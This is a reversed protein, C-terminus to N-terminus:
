DESLRKIIDSCFEDSYEYAPYGNVYDVVPCPLGQSPSTNDQLQPMQQQMRHQKAKQLRSQSEKYVKLESQLRDRDQAAMMEYKRKEDPDLGRWREGLLKGMEAFKIGEKFEELIKPREDKTFFVYAGVARKPANPDKRKRRTKQPTVLANAGKEASASLKAANAQSAQATWAAKEQPDLSKYRQSIYKSLEGQSMRPHISKFHERTANQYLFYASVNPISEDYSSPSSRNANSLPSPTTTHSHDTYSEFSSNLLSSGISQSTDAPMKFDDYYSREDQHRSVAMAHQLEQKLSADEDNDDYSAHRQDPPPPPKSMTNTAITIM